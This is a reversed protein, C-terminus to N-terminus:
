DEEADVSLTTLLEYGSLTYIERWAHGCTGCALPVYLTREAATVTTVAADILVQCVPCHAGDYNVM